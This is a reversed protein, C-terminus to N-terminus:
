RRGVSDLSSLSWSFVPWVDVTDEAAEVPGTSTSPLEAHAGRDAGHKLWLSWLGDVVYWPGPTSFWEVAYVPLRPLMGFNRDANSSGGPRRSGWMCMLWVSGPVTAVTWVPQINVQPRDQVTVDRRTIPDNGLCSSSSPIHTPDSPVISFMCLPLRAKYRKKPARSSRPLAGLLLAVWTAFSLSNRVQGRM